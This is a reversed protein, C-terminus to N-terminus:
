HPEGPEADILESDPTAGPGAESLRLSIPVSAAFVLLLVIAVVASLEDAHGFDPAGPQTALFPIILAAAGLLLETSYLRNAAASFRLHGHRLGGVLIALGLVFLANGLVSGILAAAVVEHLGAQLAFISLFLEPLNGLVSQVVGTAAPSLREALWETAEGVAVAGGALAIVAFAFRVLPPLGLVQALAVLAFAVGYGGFILVARRPIGAISTPM